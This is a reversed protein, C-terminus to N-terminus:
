GNLYDEVLQRLIQVREPKIDAQQAKRYLLLMYIVSQDVVWYYIIRAGGRKGSGLTRWRMKRLDGSGPIVAGTDPHLIM